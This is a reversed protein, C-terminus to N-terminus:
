ASVQSDDGAKLLKHASRVTILGGSLLYEGDEAKVATGLVKGNTPVIVLGNTIKVTLSSARYSLNEPYFDVKIVKGSLGAMDFAQLLAKGMPRTWLLGDPFHRGPEPAGPYETNYLRAMLAVAIYERMDSYPSVQFMLELEVELNRYYAQVAKEDSEPLTASSGGEPVSRFAQWREYWWQRLQGAFLDFSDAMPHTGIFSLLEQPIPRCLSWEVDLMAGELSQIGGTIRELMKCLKTHVIVPNRKMVSEPLRGQRRWGGVTFSAPIVVVNDYMDKVLNVLTEREDISGDKTVGKSQDIVSETDNGIRRLQFRERKEQLAYVKVLETQRDTDEAANAELIQEALDALIDEHSYSVLTDFMLATIFFGLGAAQDKVARIEAMLHARSYVDQNHAHKSRRVFRDKTALLSERAQLLRPHSM